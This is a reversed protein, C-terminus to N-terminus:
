YYLFGTKRKISRTKDSNRVMQKWNRFCGFTALFQLICTCCSRPSLDRPFSIRPVWTGRKRNGTKQPLTEMIVMSPFTERHFRYIETQVLSITSINLTSPDKRYSTSRFRVELTFELMFELIFEYEYFSSLNKYIYFILNSYNADCFHSDKICM